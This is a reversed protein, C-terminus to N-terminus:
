RKGETDGVKLVGGELVSDQRRYLDLSRHSHCHSPRKTMTAIKELSLLGVFCILNQPAMDLFNDNYPKLGDLGARGFKNVM